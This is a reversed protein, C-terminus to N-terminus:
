PTIKVPEKVVAPIRLYFSDLDAPIEVAMWINIEDGASEVVINFSEETDNSWSDALTEGEPTKMGRFGIAMVPSFSLSERYIYNIGFLAPNYSIRGFDPATGELKVLVIKKDRRSPILKEGNSLTISEVTEIVTAKPNCLAFDVLKLYKPDEWYDTKQGYSIQPM